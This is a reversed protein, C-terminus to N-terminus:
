KKETSAISFDPYSQQGHEGIDLGELEEAESVRVGLVMKIGMWVIYSLIFTFLAVAIIGIIQSMLLKTGGGFLLGNGTTNPVFQDQAFLGVAFTGFVGCCLHVSLAGVPDDIKFKDFMLVSFVVIVGAISGIWFSSGVSVFACPATIAVLGALLGNISMGLDPKGLVIWATATAALLGAAAATNTTIVIRSM